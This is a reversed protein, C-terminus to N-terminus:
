QTNVYFPMAHINRRVQTQQEQLSLKRLITMENSHSSKAGFSQAGDFSSHLRRYLFFTTHSCGQCAQVEMIAKNVYSLRHKHGAHANEVYHMNRILRILKLQNTLTIEPSRRNSEELNLM